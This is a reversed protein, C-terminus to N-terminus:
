RVQVVQVGYRGDTLIPELLWHGNQAQAFMLHDHSMLADVTVGVIAGLPVGLLFGIGSCFSAEKGECGPRGSAFVAGGLGGAGAGILAGNWLRDGRQRIERVESEGYERTGDGTRLLLRSTEVKEFRGRVRTGDTTTLVVRQDRELVEALGQFTAAPLRDSTQRATRASAPATQAASIGAIGTLIGATMAVSMAATRLKRAMKTNRANIAAIPIGSVEEVEVVCCV